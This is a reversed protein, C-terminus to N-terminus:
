NRPFFDLNDPFMGTDARSKCRSLLPHMEVNYGLAFPNNDSLEKFVITEVRIRIEKPLEALEKLFRKTFEVKWM